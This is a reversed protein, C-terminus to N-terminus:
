YALNYYKEDNGQLSKYLRKQQCRSIEEDNGDFDTTDVYKSRWSRYQYIVAFIVVLISFLRLVTDSHM